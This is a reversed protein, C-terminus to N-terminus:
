SGTSSGMMSRPTPLAADRRSFTILDRTREGYLKAAMDHVTSRVGGLTITM